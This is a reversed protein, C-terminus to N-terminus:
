QCGEIGAAISAQLQMTAISPEVITQKQSDSDWFPNELVLTKEPSLLTQSRKKWQPFRLIGKESNTNNM